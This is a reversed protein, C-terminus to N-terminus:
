RRIQVVLGVTASLHHVLRYRLGTDSALAGVPSLEQIRLALPSPAVHDSAELRLAVGGPGLPLRFDTGAGFNVAFVTETSLANTTILFQRGDGAIIIVTQGSADRRGPGQDIFTLSPIVSKKLNYTVGGFGIFGYPWILRSPRYDDFGVVGRLDYLWTDMGVSTVEGTTNGIRLSSHSFGAQGRLGYRGRWYTAAATLETAPKVHLDQAVIQELVGSTPSISGLLVLDSWRTLSLIGASLSLDVHPPRDESDAWPQSWDQGLAPAPLLALAFALRILVRTAQRM